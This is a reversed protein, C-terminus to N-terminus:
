VGTHYVKNLLTLFLSESNKHVGSYSFITVGESLWPYLVEFTYCQWCFFFILLRPSLMRVSSSVYLKPVFVGANKVM